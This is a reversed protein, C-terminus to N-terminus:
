LIYLVKLVDCNKKNKKKSFPNASLFSKYIPVNRKREKKQQWVYIYFRKKKMDTHAKLIYFTYIYVFTYLANM